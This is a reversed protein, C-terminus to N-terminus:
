DKQLRNSVTLKGDNFAKALEEFM